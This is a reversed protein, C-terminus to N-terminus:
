KTTRWGGWFDNWVDDLVILFKKGEILQRIDQQVQEMVNPSGQGLINQAIQKVDFIDFM